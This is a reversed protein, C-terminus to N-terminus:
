ASPLLIVIRTGKHYDGVVRDGISIRGGYAEVLAKVVALGLGTGFAGEMYRMFLKQKQHPPIGQGYDIFEIKCHHKGSVNVKSVEIEIQKTTSSYKVANILINNFVDLLLMNALTYCPNSSVQIKFDFSESLPNKSIIEIAQQLYDVVDVKELAERRVKEALGLRRVNRILGDARELELAADKLLTRSNESIDESELLGLCVMIAQHYNSIDHVLLDAFLTAHRQAREARSLERVYLIGLITPGGLLGGVLFMESAWWGITFASYNGKLMVPVIWLLLAGIAVMDVGIRGQVKNVLLIALYTYAFLVLLNTGMLIARAIPLSSVSEFHTLVLDEFFGAITLLILTTFPGTFLLFDMTSKDLRKPAQLTWRIALPLSALTLLSGLVYPVLSISRTSSVLVYLEIVSWASYLFIIPYRNWSPKERSYAIVLFAIVILLVAAGLHSLQYAPLNEIILGPSIAESATTIIVPAFGLMAISIILQHARTSNMGIQKLFPITVALLLFFLGIARLPFAFTWVEGGLFLGAVMPMWSIGFITFGIIMQPKSFDIREGPLKTWLIGALTLSVGTLIGFFVGFGIM